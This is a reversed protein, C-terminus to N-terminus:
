HLVIAFNNRSSGSRLEKKKFTVTKGVGDQQYKWLSYYLKNTKKVKILCFGLSTMMEELRDETLYRSNEVCPLPLVLFLCPFQQSTSESTDRTLFGSIRQLMAGRAAPNPVFNLVLSLSIIHYKQGETDPVSLDTFDIEQIGPEQSHLDIRTVELRDIKSIANRTSLAGIELVRFKMGHPKAAEISERLWEVLL